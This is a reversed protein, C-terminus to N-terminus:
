CSNSFRISPREQKRECQAQSLSSQPLQAQVSAARNAFFGGTSPRNMNWKLPVACINRSHHNHCSGAVFNTLWFSASLRAAKRLFFFFLCCSTRWRCLARYFVSVFGRRSLKEAAAAASLEKLFQSISGDRHLMMAHLYYVPISMATVWTIKVLKRCLM